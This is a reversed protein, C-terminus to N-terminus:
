SAKLFTDKLRWKKHSANSILLYHLGVNRSWPEKTKWFSGHLGFIVTFDLIEVERNFFSGHLGFIVTFDLFLRSTWFKSKVTLFLVTFDLFFDWILRSTSAPWNVTFYTWGTFLQHPLKFACTLCLYDSRLTSEHVCQFLYITKKFFRWMSIVATAPPERYAVVIKTGEAHLGVPYM